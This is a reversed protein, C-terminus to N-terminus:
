SLVNPMAYEGTENSNTLILQKDRFIKMPSHKFTENLNEPDFSRGWYQLVLVSNATGCSNRNISQYVLYYVLHLIKYFKLNILFQYNIKTTENSSYISYGFHLKYPPSNYHM